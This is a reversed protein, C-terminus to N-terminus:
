WLSPIVARRALATELAGRLETLMEANLEDPAAPDFLDRDALPLRVHRFGLSRIYAIDDAGFAQQAYWPSFDDYTWQYGWFPRTVNVGISLRELRDAPVGGVSCPALADISDGSIM